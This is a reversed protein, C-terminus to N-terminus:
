WNLDMQNVLFLFGTDFISPQTMQQFLPVSKPQSKWPMGSTRLRRLYSQFDYDWSKKWKVFDDVFYLIRVRNFDIPIRGKVEALGSNWSNLGLRVKKMDKKCCDTELSPVSQTQLATELSKLFKKNCGLRHIIVQKTLLPVTPLFRLLFLSFVLSHDSYSYCKKSVDMQQFVNELSNTMSHYM